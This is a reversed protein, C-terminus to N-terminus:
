RAGITDTCSGQSRTTTISLAHVVYVRCTTQLVEFNAYLRIYLYNTCGMSLSVM